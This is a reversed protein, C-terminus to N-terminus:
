LSQLAEKIEKLSRKEPKISMNTDNELVANTMGFFYNEQGLDSIVVFKGRIGKQFLIQHACLSWDGASNQNVKLVSNTQDAIFYVLSNHSNFEHPIEVCIDGKLETDPEPYSGLSIWSTAAHVPLKFGNIITSGENHNVKWDSIDIMNLSGDPRRWEINNNEDASGEFFEFGNKPSVRNEPLYIFIPENIVISENEQSINLYVLKRGDFLRGKYLTSPASLMNSKQGSFEKFEIKIDGSVPEGNLTTLGNEPIEIISGEPGFFIFPFAGLKIHYIKPNGIIQSLIVEQNISYNQDPIFIKEDKACSFLVLSALCLFINNVKM